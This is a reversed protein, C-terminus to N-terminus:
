AAVAQAACARCPICWYDNLGGGTYMRTYRDGDCDRCVAPPAAPAVPEVSPLELTGLRHRLMARHKCCEDGELAARCECTDVTLVYAATTDTGSTAIWVRTSAVQRVTVGQEIARDLAKRWRAPTAVTVRSRVSQTEM